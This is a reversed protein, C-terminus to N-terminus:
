HAMWLAIPSSALVSRTMGGLLIERFRSRGYAGMVILDSGEEKAFRLLAEGEGAAARTATVDVRVGHRALSRAIDAGPELGHVGALTDPDFVVLDVQHATKLVPLASAVARAAENSGNWALTVRAGPPQTAGAGPLVLVPRASNLVVYDPFDSRQRPFFEDLGVQGIIALDCYRSQMAMAIGPDEDLCRREISAAGAARATSEFLDLAREARARLDALPWDPMPVGTLLGDGAFIFEPVGTAAAGILHADNDRAIAAALEVRAVSRATEDIHVLITKYM